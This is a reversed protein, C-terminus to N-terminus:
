MFAFSSFILLFIGFIFIYKAVLLDIDNFKVGARETRDDILVDIGMDNLEKYLKNGANLQEEDKTNIFFKDPNSNIITFGDVAVNDSEIKIVSDLLKAGESKLIVPRNLIIRKDNFNGKFILEYDEYDSKLYGNDDFCTYFNDETVIFQNRLVNIKLIKMM